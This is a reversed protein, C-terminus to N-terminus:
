FENPIIESHDLCRINSITDSFWSVIPRNLPKYGAPGGANVVRGNTVGGRGPAKISCHPGPNNLSARTFIQM